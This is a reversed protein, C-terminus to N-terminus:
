PLGNNLDFIHGFGVSSSVPDSGDQHIDVEVNFLSLKQRQHARRARSLAGKEIENGGEILDVAARDVDAADIDGGKRFALKGGPPGDIHPEDKLEVIEDRDEGGKFVDLKGQKEGAKGSSLPPIMHLHGKLDDVKGVPHVMIGAWSEPPSCCRTAMARAMTVSGVIRTASSGVPSRSRFAASSTRPNISLSFRSDCLVIMMTVWSGRAAWFAWIM